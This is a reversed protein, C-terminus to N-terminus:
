ARAKEVLDELAKELARPQPFLRRSYLWNRRRGIDLLGTLKAESRERARIPQVDELAMRWQILRNRERTKDGDLVCFLSTKTAALWTRQKKTRFINVQGVVVEGPDTQPSHEILECVGHSTLFLTGPEYRDDSTVAETTAEEVPAEEVSGEEDEASRDAALMEDLTLMFSTLEAEYQSPEMSALPTGTAPRAQIDALWATQLFLSNRVLLPVIILGEEQRDFLRPMEEEIIFDSALFDPSILLIAFRSEKIARDIDERWTSGMQIKQDSWLEFCLRGQGETERHHVQEKTLVSLQLGRLSTQIRERWEVDKHSYCVFIKDPVPM